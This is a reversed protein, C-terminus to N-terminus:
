RTVATEWGDYEGGLLKAVGEFKARMEASKAPNPVLDRNERALRTSCKAAPRVEVAYGADRLQAAAEQARAQDPLYLYNM